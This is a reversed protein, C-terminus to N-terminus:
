SRSKPTLDPERTDIEVTVSLGPLLRALTEDDAELRFRVPVRQVIKTFNGTANEPPLLAFQAGTGPSFSDLVGHLVKGGLADVSISAAQGIRLQGIQTEKFNAIAYIEEPVISLLRTGPQVFQGRRVTLDGVRGSASAVILTHGVDLNAEQIAAQAVNAQARAQEIQARLTEAHRKSATLAALDSREASTAQDSNNAMQALREKSEAGNAILSRYREAERAAFRAGIISGELRATAQEVLALQQQVQAEAATVDTLRADFIARQRVVVARYIEADIRVLPQGAKVSQNDRVLVESVYGSLRPAVAMQDAKLYGNNTTQIYRSITWWHHAYVSSSTLTTVLTMWLVFRIRPQRRAGASLITIDSSAPNSHKSYGRETVPQVDAVRDLKSFPRQNDVEAVDGPLDCVSGNTECLFGRRQVM